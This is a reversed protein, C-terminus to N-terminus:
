YSNNLFINRTVQQTITSAGQWRRGSGRREVAVWAARAMGIPDVGPHHYFRRDETSVMADVMVQPIQDYEMWRGFSPGLSVIVSGDAAHVRIMQGNPSSKLSAYDPLSQMAIVVAIVLALLGAVTAALGIKLGRLAWTKARSRAGKSKGSGAM